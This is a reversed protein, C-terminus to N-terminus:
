SPDIQLTFVISDGTLLNLALFVAHVFCIGSTSASFLGYETIAQAAAGCVMAASTAQYKASAGTGVVTVTNAVRAEGNTSATQIGTDAKVPTTTGIGWDAHSGANAFVNNTGAGQVGALREAAWEEGNNTLVIGVAM